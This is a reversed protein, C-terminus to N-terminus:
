INADLWDDIIGTFAEELEEGAELEEVVEDVFAKILLGRATKQDIGRAQMYFMHEDDIDTVTAGHACIVDDAFIELEPKASFDGEDTLLLTNCAMQADTKQAPQAVKIQGQFVGHGDGAVVNRFLEEANTHPVNHELVTTVDIHANDGVLNVGRIALNANEGNVAIKVEQRVLKGGANLVFISLDADQALTVNLRALHTAGVGAQQVIFYEVKAGQQVNLSVASSTMHNADSRGMQREIFRSTSGEAATISFRTSAISEAAGTHAHALGITQTVEKGKAVAISVGATTIKSNIQPITDDAGGDASLADPLDRSVMVGEPLTENREFGHGDYFHLVCADSALRPFSDGMTRTADDEPRAAQEGLSKLNARLDTYHFSEVRRTPLMFGLTEEAATKQINM